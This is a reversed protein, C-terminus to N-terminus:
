KFVVEVDFEKEIMPIMQHEVDWRHDPYKNWDPGRTISWGQSGTKINDFGYLTIERPKLVECAYLLTHLGASMHNHGLPTFAQVGEPTDYPTRLARYITNWTFCLEPLIKCPVAEVMRGVVSWPLDDHRSDLFAWYENKPMHQPLMLAITYSGCVIDTKTGYQEPHKLTEECRKMRIVTAHEDIEAGYEHELMSPGHGIIAVM